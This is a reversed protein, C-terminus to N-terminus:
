LAVDTDPETQEPESHWSDRKWGTDIIYTWMRKSPLTKSYSSKSSAISPTLPGRNVEDRELIAIDLPTMEQHDKTNLDISPHRLLIEISTWKTWLICRQLLSSGNQTCNVDVQGTDILQEMVAERGHWGELAAISLPTWRALNHSDVDVRETALLLKVAEDFGNRAALMLPSCGASDRCDPDAGATLLLELARTGASLLRSSCFIAYLATYGHSTRYNIDMDGTQFLLEIISADCHHAAAMLPSWADPWQPHLGLDRRTMMLKIVDLRGSSIVVPIPTAVREESLIRRYNINLDEYELLFTLFAINFFEGEGKDHWYNPLASELARFGRQQSRANIDVQRTSLLSRSIATDLDDAGKIETNKSIHLFPTYGARDRCDVATNTCNLLLKVTEHQEMAAAYALPTTDWTDQCNPNHGDDLLKAVAPILGFYAAFHLV